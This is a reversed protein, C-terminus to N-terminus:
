KTRGRSITQWDGPYVRERAEWEGKPDDIHLAPGRQMIKQNKFRINYQKVPRKPDRFGYGNPGTSWHVWGKKRATTFPHDTTADWGMLDELFSAEIIEDLTM